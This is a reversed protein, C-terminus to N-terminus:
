LELHSPTACVTIKIAFFTGRGTSIGHLLFTILLHLDIHIDKISCLNPTTRQVILNHKNHHAETCNACEINSYKQHILKYIHQIELRHKQASWINDVFQLM